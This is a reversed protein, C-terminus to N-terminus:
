TALAKARRALDETRERAERVPALLNSMWEMARAGLNLSEDRSDPAKWRSLLRAVRRQTGWRLWLWIVTFWIILFTVNRLLAAGSLVGVLLAALKRGGTWLDLRMEPLSLMGELVPQVFPFWLLAGITLLWRFVPAIVGGRGALRQVAAARQRQVTAALARCLQGAAMEAPMDEWLRNHRYLEALAPQSQRLQAFTAQVAGAMGHGSGAGAAGAGAGDLYAEVLAEAGRPGIGARAAAGVNSRWIALV